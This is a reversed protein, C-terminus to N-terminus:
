VAIAWLGNILLMDYGRILLVGFIQWYITREEYWEYGKHM